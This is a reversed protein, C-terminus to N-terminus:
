TTLMLNQLYIIGFLLKYTMFIEMFKEKLINNLGM